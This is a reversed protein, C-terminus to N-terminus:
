QPGQGFNQLTIHTFSYWPNPQYLVTYLRSEGFRGGPLMQARRVRDGQQIDHWGPLLIRPNEEEVEGLGFRQVTGSAPIFLAEGNFVVIEPFRLEGLDLSAGSTEGPGLRFIVLRESPFSRVLIQIDRQVYFRPPRQGRFM